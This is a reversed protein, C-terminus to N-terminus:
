LRRLRRLGRRGEVIPSGMTPNAQAVFEWRFEGSDADLAIVRRGRSGYIVMDETVAPSSDIPAIDEHEWIINGTEADLAVVRKDHTTVYM